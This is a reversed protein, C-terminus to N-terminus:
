GWVATFSDEVEKLSVGGDIWYPGFAHQIKEPMPAGCHQCEDKDLGFQHCYNCAIMPSENPDSNDGVPAGCHRCQTYVAAWQECHACRVIADRDEDYM